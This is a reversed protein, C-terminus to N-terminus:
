DRNRPDRAAGAEDAGGEHGEGGDDTRGAEEPLSPAAEHRLPTTQM